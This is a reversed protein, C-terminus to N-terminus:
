TTSTSVWKTTTNENIAKEKRIMLIVPVIALL